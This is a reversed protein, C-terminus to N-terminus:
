LLIRAFLLIEQFQLRQIKNLESNRKDPPLIRRSMEIEMKRLM